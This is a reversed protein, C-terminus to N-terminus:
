ECSTNYCGPYLENSSNAVCGAIGNDPAKYFQATYADHAFLDSSGLIMDKQDQTFDPLFGSVYEKLTAPYDGTLFIPTAFWGENFDWARQTAQADEDSQTLPAKYGGNNKFSVTGNLGMRKAARYASSHALLANHGCVYPQQQDPIPPDLERFYGEPLPYDDCFVIPENITYWHKVKDGWREFLLEAYATFDDVIQSNLWGGYTDQLYLPLDWHFITVAPEVGYEICTNIVDDYHALGQPNTAGSGFPFIRSWSISFSYM